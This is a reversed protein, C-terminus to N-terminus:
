GRLASLLLDAQEASIKGEQLMQLVMLREENSAGERPEAPVEHQQPGFGMKSGMPMPPMPPMPPIPPVPPVFFGKRAMRGMKREMKGRMKRDFKEIKLGMQWPQGAAAQDLHLRISEDEWEQDTLMLEGGASIILQSGGTGLTLLHQKVNLESYQDGFNLHIERENSNLQVEANFEPLLHVMADGGATLRVMPLTCQTPAILLDGGCHLDGGLGVQRLYTDGGVRSATLVGIEEGVLDGGVKGLLLSGRVNRVAAQGNVQEVWLNEAGDVTLDGSLREMKLDCSVGRVRVSGSAREVMVQGKAPLVARLDGSCVVAVQSEMQEVRFDGRGGHLTLDDAAGGELILDGSVRLYVKQSENVPVSQVVM